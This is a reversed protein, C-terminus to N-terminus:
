QQRAFKNMQFWILLIFLRARHPLCRRSGLQEIKEELSARIVQLFGCCRQFLAASQLAQSYVAAAKEKGLFSLLFFSTIIILTIIIVHRASTSTLVPLPPSGPAPTSAPAPQDGGLERLTSITVWSPLPFSTENQSSGLKWAGGPAPPPIHSAPSPSPSDSTHALPEADEQQLSFPPQQPCRPPCLGLESAQFPCFTCSFSLPHLPLM